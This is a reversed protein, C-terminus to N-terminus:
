RRQLSDFRSSIFGEVIKPEYEDLLNATDTKLFRIYTILRLWLRLLFYVSSAVWEPLLSHLSVTYGLWETVNMLQWVRASLEVGFVELLEGSSYLLLLAQHSACNEGSLFDLQDQILEANDLPDESLEDSFESLLLQLSDFRSSIFGEIIKSAYEDLLNATDTFDLQDQILEANDLPDESLEDSFESLLLQLSDFRSSIFGEIIKRAYEDLLNATDTKSFSSLKSVSLDKFSISIKHELMSPLGSNPIYNENDRTSVKCPHQRGDIKVEAPKMEKGLFSDSDDPSNDNDDIVISPKVEGVQHPPSDFDTLPIGDDHYHRNNLSLPTKWCLRGDAMESQTVWGSDTVNILQWVRASLETDFVEQLEGSSYLLLLAQHSVCNERLKHGSIQLTKLVAAFIHVIWPLKVEALSLQINDADCQLNAGD